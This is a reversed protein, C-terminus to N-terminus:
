IKNKPIMLRFDKTKKDFYIQTSIKNKELDKMHKEASFNNVWKLVSRAYKKNIPSKANEEIYTSEEEILSILQNIRSPNTCLSLEEMYLSLSKKNDTNKQILHEKYEKVASPTVGLLIITCIGIIVFFVIVITISIQTIM